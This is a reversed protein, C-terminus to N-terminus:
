SGSRAPLSLWCSGGFLVDPHVDSAAWVSFMGSGIKLLRKARTLAVM